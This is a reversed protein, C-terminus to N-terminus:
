PSTQQSAIQAFQIELRQAAAAAQDWDSSVWGMFTFLNAAAARLARVLYFAIGAVQASSTGVTVTQLTSAPRHSVSTMDMAWTLGFWTVHDAASLRSFLVNGAQSDPPSGALQVISESIRPRRTGDIIPKSRGNNVTWGFSRAVGEWLQVSEGSNASLELAAVENASYLLECLGRKMRDLPGIRLESLWFSTGAAELAARALPLHAYMPPHDGGFLEAFGRVYDSSARLTAIAFSHTDTIPAEWDSRSRYNQEAAIEGMAVSEVDPERLANLVADVASALARIGAVQEALRERFADAGVTEACM